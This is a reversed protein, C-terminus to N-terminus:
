EGTWDIGDRLKDSAINRLVTVALFRRCMDPGQQATFIVAGKADRVEYRADGRNTTDVTNAANSGDNNNNDHHDVVRVIHLNLSKIVKRRRQRHLSSSQMWAPFQALLFGVVVYLVVSM